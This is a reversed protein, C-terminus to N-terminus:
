FQANADDHGDRQMSRSIVVFQTTSFILTVNFESFVIPGEAQLATHIYSLIEGFEESSLSYKPVIQM